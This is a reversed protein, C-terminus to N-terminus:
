GSRPRRASVVVPEVAALTARLVFIAVPMVAIQAAVFGPASAPEIGAFSDTLMRGITVAPNAFCTSATFAFAATVYGAVASAVVPLPHFRDSIFVIALLGFTAVAESGVLRVDSRDTTSVELVSRGFMANATAVGTVAGLLQAVTYRAAAGRDIRGLALNTLTVVPNFHAGSIPALTVILAALAAGVAIANQLLQLGVDDTLSQAMEGSGVIAALLFATGVFEAGARVNIPVDVPVDIPVDVPGSM